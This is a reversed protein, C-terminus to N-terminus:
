DREVQTTVPLQSFWFVRTPRCSAQGLRFPFSRADFRAVDIVLKLRCRVVGHLLDRKPVFEILPDSLLLRFCVSSHANGVGPSRIGSATGTVILSAPM